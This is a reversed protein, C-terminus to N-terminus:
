GFHYNIGNGTNFHYSKALAAGPLLAGLLTLALMFTLVAGKLLRARATFRKM